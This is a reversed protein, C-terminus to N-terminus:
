WMGPTGFRAARGNGSAIGGGNRAGASAMAAPRTTMPMMKTHAPSSFNILSALQVAAPKRFDPVAPVGAQGNTVPSIGWPM